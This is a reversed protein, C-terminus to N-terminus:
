GNHDSDRDWLWGDWVVPCVFSLIALVLIGAFGWVGDNAADTAGAAMSLILMFYVGRFLRAATSVRLTGQLQDEDM